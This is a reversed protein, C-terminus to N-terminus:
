FTLIRTLEKAIRINYGLTTSLLYGKISWCCGPIGLFLLTYTWTNCSRIGPAIKQILASDAEILPSYLIKNRASLYFGSMLASSGIWLFMWRGHDWGLLSLPLFTTSQLLIINRRIHQYQRPGGSTFLNICIYITLAWAGPIWIGYSFDNLISLHLRIAFWTSWGIAGIASWYNPLDQFLTGESALISALEQWSQHISASHFTSGKNIICLAFTLISPTMSLTSLAIRPLNEKASGFFFTSLLYIVGPLAWIAYSEHTLISTSCLLNIMIISAYSSSRKTKHKPIILLSLGLLALCFIDKRIFFNGILPALLLLQSSLLSSYIKGKCLMWLLVILLSYALLCIVWIIYIPSINSLTSFAHIISGPLGRRVFGGAYSILWESVTWNSDYYRNHYLNLPVGAIIMAFFLKTLVRSEIYLRVISKM